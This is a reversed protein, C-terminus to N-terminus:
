TTPSEPEDHLGDLVPSRKNWTFMFIFAGILTAGIFSTFAGNWGFRDVVMGTGIGSVTAGAYGFFGTLGVATAAAKKTAFDAAAVAVLMQPGYVFFGLAILIWAITWQRGEGVVLLGYVCAALALMFIVMVPGRRGKFLKDSFWGAVLAGLVGSIEFGSAAFGSAEESFGKSEQLFRPGWDLVSIRVIYVFFNGLCVLWIMPNTLIHEKFNEWFPPQVAESEAEEQSTTVPDASGKYKSHYVDVSPLGVSQPTDRMCYIILFGGLLAIAAPVHFASQWGFNAVLYGAMILIVAGGIQHSSNWIGWATGSERPAYWYTLTKSCPPVGTGQFLNSVAWFVIFLVLPSGLGLAAALAPSVGFAINMLASLILGLGMLYRANMRDALVGSFFKSFAYVVTATSLIAGMETNTFGFAESLPKNAMSFNKRVFYFLAYGCLMGTMVKRRWLPYERRIQEPDEIPPAPLPHRLMQKLKTM